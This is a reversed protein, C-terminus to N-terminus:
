IQQVEGSNLSSVIMMMKMLYTQRDIWVYNIMMKKKKKKKKMLYTPSSMSIIILIKIILIMIVIIIIIYCTLYTQRAVFSSQSSISIIIFINIIMIMIFFKDSINTSCCVLKAFVHIHNHFYQNDHDYYFFSTLYTQRAVFSSPSSIVSALRTQLGRGCRWHTKIQDLNIM